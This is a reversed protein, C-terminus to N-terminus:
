SVSRRPSSTPPPCRSPARTTTTRLPVCTPYSAPSENSATRSTRSPRTTIRSANPPSFSPRKSSRTSAPPPTTSRTTSKTSSDQVSADSRHSSENQVLEAEAEKLQTLATELERKNRDLEYRLAFERFRARNQFFTGVVVIIDMLSIFYFNNFLTKSEPFHGHIIGAGIYIFLVLIVAVISELLSWHLVAGVALLVLNLGAYYPSAFGDKMAIMAGIFIVPLLPVVVGLWKCKRRGIEYYLSAWILAAISACILRLVLFPVVEGRYVFYDLSSGAPMLTVVLACGVKTNTIRQQAEHIEFAKAIEPNGSPTLNTM